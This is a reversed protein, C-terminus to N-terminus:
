PGVEVICSLRVKDLKELEAMKQKITGENLQELRVDLGTLKDLWYKANNDKEAAGSTPTMLLNQNNM